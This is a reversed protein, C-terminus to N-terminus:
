LVKGTALNVLVARNDQGGTLAITSENNAALSLVKGQHYRGDEATRAGRTSSRNSRHVHM